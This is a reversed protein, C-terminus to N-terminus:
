KMAEAEEIISKFRKLKVPELRFIIEPALDMCEKFAALMKANLKKLKINEDFLKNSAIIQESYEHELKEVREELPKVDESRCATGHLNEFWIGEIINYKQIM